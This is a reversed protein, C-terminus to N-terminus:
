LHIVSSAFLAEILIVLTASQTQELPWWASNYTTNGISTRLLHLDSILPYVFLLSSTSLASYRWMYNFLSYLLSFPIERHASRGLGVKAPRPCKRVAFVVLGYVRLIVKIAAALQRIM